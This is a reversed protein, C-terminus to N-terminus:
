ATNHIEKLQKDIETALADLCKDDIPIGIEKEDYDYCTGDIFDIQLKDDVTITIAQIALPNLRTKGVRIM